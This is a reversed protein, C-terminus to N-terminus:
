HFLTEFSHINVEALGFIVIKRNGQHDQVNDVMHNKSGNLDHEHKLELVVLKPANPGGPGLTGNVISQLYTIKKYLVAAFIDNIM